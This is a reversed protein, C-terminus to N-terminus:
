HTYVSDLFITCVFRNGPCSYLCLHLFFVCPGLTPLLPHSSNLLYCQCTYVAMRSASVQHSAAAHCLSSLETSQLSRPRPPAERIAWNTLFGGAICSVRTRNGPWSSESSVPYAVWELVSPSWKHSLQYLIWRCVASGPPSGDIPDCLTPCLQLSKAAVAAAATCSVQTRDRPQSSGRSFPTAVWELIRAQVTYDMPDCLTPYVSCSESESKLSIPHSPPFPPLLSGLSTWSPPSTHICIASESWRVTSM